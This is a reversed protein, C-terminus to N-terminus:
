PEGRRTAVLQHALDELSALTGCPLFEDVYPLAARLGQTAPEFGPRGALPDLWILRRCSRRLTAMERALLGPDDREWGDSVLLVVAGSRVTRRVWRRNLTRLSAGIRTGGSWDVVTHAVRDLAVDADRRRLERTVRTLRTGFVFVEVPAAVRSLAHAFRLLFRSYREMSGSIDLVLVIPRPRTARRHWRWDLVEGGTRLSRRLMTRMALRRGSRRVNPRRAPRRPLSPQLSAIMARAERAEEPSLEAFDKTRLREVVSAGVQVIPLDATVAAERGATPDTPEARRRRAIRPLRTAPAAALPARRFFLDFAADYIPREDRRRTFLARGAAKLDARRAVGLLTVVRLFDRQADIGVSLGAQRLTRGFQVLNAMLIAGDPDPPKSSM